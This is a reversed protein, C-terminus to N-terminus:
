TTDHNKEKDNNKIEDIFFKLVDMRIVFYNQGDTEIESGQLLMNQLLMELKTTLLVLEQNTKKMNNINM